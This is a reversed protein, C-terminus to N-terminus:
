VGLDLRFPHSRSLNPNYYPDELDEVEGWRERFFLDDEPPHLAGRTSSEDHYLLAHPTYVILYGKERARLCIDVDNFAVRLREEFGGLEFFTEPRMLMCAGTVASCNRITQGLDFYSGHDVNSAVGGLGIVIGEHQANGTPFLLRAGVAAVKPRQGQELMAEIWEPSIVETDNNLFLIHDTPGVERAAVNMMRAYNFEHPYPFVRGDFSRLFEHTEPERSQNDVIMIEYNDYTSRRHISEVCTRL